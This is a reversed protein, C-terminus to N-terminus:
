GISDGFESKGYMNGQNRYEGEDHHKRDYQFHQYDKSYKWDGGWSFGYKKFIKTIESDKQIMYNAYEGKCKSLKRNRYAMGNAPALVGQSNIYPNIRPNIDIALGLAHKSLRNTGAIMRDNFASTNNARMSKEDDAGYEDVLEMREIPYQIKYLEYFIKVTKKAIKKNVILEGSQVKGSFDYYKVRVYRLDKYKIRSKKHYSIGTIKKRIYKPLKQYSFGKKYVKARARLLSFIVISAGLFLADSVLMYNIKKREDM